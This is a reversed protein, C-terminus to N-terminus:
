QLLRAPGHSAFTLRATIASGPRRVTSEICAGYLARLFVVLFSPPSDKIGGVSSTKIPGDASAKRGRLLVPLARILFCSANM